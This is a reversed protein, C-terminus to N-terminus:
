FLEALWSGAFYERMSRSVDLMMERYCNDIFKLVGAAEEPEIPPMNPVGYLINAVIKQMEEFTEPCDINEVWPEPKPAPPRENVLVEEGNQINSDFLWRLYDCIQVTLGSDFAGLINIKGRMFINVRTKKKPKRAVPTSFKISLKTDDRTYKIDFIAPHPPSIAENDVLWKWRSSVWEPGQGVYDPIEHPNPENNPRGNPTRAKERRLIHKLVALDIIQGPELKIMFKYNKMVPNINVMRVIKEPDEVGPHLHFNMVRVIKKACDIVDTILDPRVGPLQIKGTRFVKFKYVRSEPPVILIDNREVLPPNLNSRVFFTIQSNFDTGAGQIKRHKKKKEKKKRGRNSLKVRVPETYGEYILKGFNCRVLVVNEDPLLEQILEAEHFRVNALYGEMTNTTSIPTTFIRTEEFINKTFKELVSRDLLNNEPDFEDVELMPPKVRINVRPPQLNQIELKLADIENNYEINDTEAINDMAAGPIATAGPVDVEDENLLDFM